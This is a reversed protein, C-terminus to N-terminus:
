RRATSKEKGRRDGEDNANCKGHNNETYGEIFDSAKEFPVCYYRTSELFRKLCYKKCMRKFKNPTFEGQTFQIKINAKRATRRLDMIRLNRRIIDRDDDVRKEWPDDPNLMGFFEETSVATIVDLIRRARKEGIQPVGPIGDSVDGVMARELLYGHPCHDVFVRKSLKYQRVHDRVLQTMDKDESMITVEADKYRRLAMAAIADDAEYGKAYATHVGLPILLEPILNMQAIYEEYFEKADKDEKRKKARAAKYEPCVRRRFSPVRDDTVFIICDQPNNTLFGRLVAVTGYLAGVFIGRPTKLGRHVHTMKAVLNNGDILLVKKRKKEKKERGRRRM